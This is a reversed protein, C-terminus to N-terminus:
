NAKILKKNNIVLVARVGILIILFAIKTLSATVPNSEINNTKSM